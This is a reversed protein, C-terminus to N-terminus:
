GYTLTIIYPGGKMQGHAAETEAGGQLVVTLAVSSITCAVQLATWCAAEQHQRLPRDVAEADGGGDVRVDARVHEAM